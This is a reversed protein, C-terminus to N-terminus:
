KEVVWPTGVARHARSTVIRRVLRTFRAPDDLISVGLRIVEWGACWMDVDRISDRVSAERTAHHHGDLEIVLGLRDFVLDGVGLREGHRDYVGVNARWGRVRGRRLAAHARREASSWAGDRAEALRRRRSTNGPRGGTSSLAAELDAVSAGKRLAYEVADKASTDLATLALSTVRWGKRNRVLHRPLEARRFVFGEAPRRKHPSYVLPVAPQRLPWGCLWAAADGGIVADPDFLCAARARGELTNAAAPTAYTGPLLRVLDGRRLAADIAHRLGPHDRRRLVGGSREIATALDPNM